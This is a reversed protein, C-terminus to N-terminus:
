TERPMNAVKLRLKTFDETSMADIQEATLEKGGINGSSITDQGPSSKVGAGEGSAPPQFRKDKKVISKVAEVATLVKNGDDYVVKGTEDDVTLHKKVMMKLFDTNRYQNPKGESGNVASSLAEAIQAKKETKLREEDRQELQELRRQQRTITSRIGEPMLAVAEKVTKPETPEDSGGEDSPELEDKPQKQKKRFTASQQRQIGELSELIPATAEQIMKSVAAMPVNEAGTDAGQGPAGGQTSTPQTGAGPEGGQQTTTDDGDSM